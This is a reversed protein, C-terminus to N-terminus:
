KPTVTAAGPGIELDFAGIGTTGKVDAVAPESVSLAFEVTGAALANGQYVAFKGDESVRKVVESFQMSGASDLDLIRSEGARPLRVVVAVIGLPDTQTASFGVTAKLGGEFPVVHAGTLTLGSSQPPKAFGTPTMVLTEDGPVPPAAQAAAPEAPTPSSPAEEPAAAMGETPVGPGTPASEPPVARLHRSEERAKRAEEILWANEQRMRAMEARQRWLAACLFALAAALLAMWLSKSLATRPNM